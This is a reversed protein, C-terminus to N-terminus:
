WVSSTDSRTASLDLVLEGLARKVNDDLAAQLIVSPDEKISPSFDHQEKISAVLKGKCDYIMLELEVFPTGRDSLPMFYRDDIKVIGARDRSTCSPTGATVNAPTPSSQLAELRLDAHLMYRLGRVLEDESAVVAPREATSLSPTARILDYVAAPQAAFAAARAGALNWLLACLVAALIRVPPPKTVLDVLAYGVADGM